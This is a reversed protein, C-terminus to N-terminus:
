NDDEDIDGNRDVGAEESEYTHDENGIVNKNLNENSNVGLDENKEENANVDKATELQKPIKQSRCV